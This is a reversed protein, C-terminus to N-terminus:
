TFSQFDGLKFLSAAKNCIAVFDNPNIASAREYCEVAEAYRGMDHLLNGKNSGRMSLTTDALIATDYANMAVQFLGLGHCHWETNNLNHIM